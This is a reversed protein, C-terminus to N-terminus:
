VSGQLSHQALSLFLFSFPLFAPFSFAFLAVPFFPPLTQLLSPLQLLTVSFVFLLVLALSSFLLCPFIFHSSSLFSSLLPLQLIILSTLPLRLFLLLIFFFFLLLFRVSFSLCCCYPPFFKSSFCLSLSFAFLSYPVAFFSWLFSPFSLTVESSSSVNPPIMDPARAMMAECLWAM